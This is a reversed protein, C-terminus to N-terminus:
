APGRHRARAVRSHRSGGLTSLIHEVIASPPASIDVVLADSPEELAAFQSALMGVKMFHSPRDELRARIVAPPGKLYVWSIPVDKALRARYRQKLASCGVVLDLGREFAELIRVHIAELWRARDADTLPVGRSMKDINETSHLSDGELFACQIADALKTGITTKGSGAVGMVAIILGWREERPTHEFFM